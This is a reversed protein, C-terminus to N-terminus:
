LFLLGLSTIIGVWLMIVTTYGMIDKIGLKAVALLPLAWFPQIMNTWADGWAIASATRAYSVGLAQAAPMMIPGQVAWQGGGSPVFMNVLGASWYTFLQFTKPTSISVFWNSFTAALGSSVMMGMIGAYFPFQLVIGGCNRVSKDVAKVYNIPTKHMLLGLVLFIFNVVDLSLSGGKALYRVAYVLGVVGVIIALVISNEIKEAPTMGKFSKTAVEEKEDEAFISPDVEVIEEKKKPMMLVNIIPVTVLLVLVIILTQPSFITEGTPIITGPAVKEMVPNKAAITLQISASLGSHWLVFGSYSSAVLLPYHIGKTVKAIEKALIASIILGFGWNLWCGIGMVFAVIAIAKAPTNAASAITKLVRHVPKSLALASGTVLVLVMQMSFGLLSWMGGGWYSTMEIFSKGQIVLGLVFVLITLIIAFIFADPIWKKAIKTFFNGLARIM